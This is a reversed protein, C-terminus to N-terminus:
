EVERNTQRVVVQCTTASWQVPWERHTGCVAGHSIHASDIYAAVYLLVSPSTEQEHCRIHVSIEMQVFYFHKVTLQRSPVYHVNYRFIRM